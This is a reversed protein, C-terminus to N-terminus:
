MMAAWWPRCTLKAWVEATAVDVVVVAPDGAAVVALPVVDVALGAAVVVLVGVVAVGGTSPPHPSPKAPCSM